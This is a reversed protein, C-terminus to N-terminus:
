EFEINYEEMYNIINLVLREKSSYEKKKSPKMGTVKLEVGLNAFDAEARCNIPYKFLGEEIIQGLCGKNKSSLRNNIDYESFRHGSATKAIKLLEDKSHYVPLESNM